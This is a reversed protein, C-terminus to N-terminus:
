VLADLSEPPDGYGADPAPGQGNALLRRAQKLHEPALAPDTANVARRALDNVAAKEGRVKTARAAFLLVVGNRPAEEVAHAIERDSADHQGLEALALGRAARASPRGDLTVRDLDDLADRAHGLDAFIEGRARLAEPNGGDIGLVGTLVALGARGKGLQWLAQGLETQVVLDNPTRDAASQLENVAEAYRGQAALTQGVAALQGAVAGTDRLAEFLRAAGRYRDEAERPKEREHALNGLLSDAEAQLRLDARRSARMTEKAYREAVDLEGLALAREAARLSDKPEAPSPREDTAARLPEILRESLLEYWRLGSRYASALLHRDLLARVVANPMSATNAPGEYATAREGYETVFTSLLWSHLRRASLNHESAVAAIVRGCHAALAIDASGYDRVEQITIPGGDQPLLAWLRACTVQLLAPQVHESIVHREDGASRRITSTQLDTVIAEAAEPDYSRATGAVPGAVAEIAGQRTLPKVCHRIGLGLVESIGGVADERAVLLLHLRPEQSIADALEALFRRRYASRPASNALLEESHDIAALIPVEPLGVRHRIFDRVTWGVMRTATEGPSWSRLLSLTYPNHEPLAAFPFTSGYSLRGVPLVDARKGAILPLVGANLLSTKGSAVQGVVFTLRNIRWSDALIAAEKARGFFRRHDAQRFPRTGPYPTEVTKMM